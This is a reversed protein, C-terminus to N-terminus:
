ARARPLAATLGIKELLESALNRFFTRPEGAAADTYFELPVADRQSAPIVIREPLEPSLVRDGFQERYEAAFAAHELTRARVMNLM